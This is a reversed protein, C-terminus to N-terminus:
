NNLNLLEILMAILDMSKFIKFKKDIIQFKLLNLFTKIMIVKIKEYILLEIKM